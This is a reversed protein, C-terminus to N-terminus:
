RSMEATKIWERIMYREHETQASDYMRELEDIMSNHSGYGDIHASYPDMSGYRGTTASRGSRYSYKDYSSKGGNMWEKYKQIKLMLKVADKVARVKEPSITGAEIIEDLEEKLDKELIEEFKEIREMM